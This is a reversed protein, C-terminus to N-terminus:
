GGHLSRSKKSASLPWSTSSLDADGVWIHRNENLLCCTCASNDKSAPCFVPPCQFVNPEQGGVMVDHILVAISVFVHEAKAKSEATLNVTVVLDAVGLPLCDGTPLEGSLGCPDGHAAHLSIVASVFCAISHMYTGPPTLGAKCPGPSLLM